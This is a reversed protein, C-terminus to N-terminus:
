ILNGLYTSFLSSLKDLCFNLLLINGCMSVVIPSVLLFLLGLNCQFEGSFTQWMWNRLWHLSSCLQYCLLLFSCYMDDNHQSLGVCYLTNPTWEEDASKCPLLCFVPRPAVRSIFLAKNIKNFSKTDYVFFRNHTNVDSMPGALVLGVSLYGMALVSDCCCICWSSDRQKLVWCSLSRWCGVVVFKADPGLVLAASTVRLPVFRLFLSVNSTWLTVKYLAAPKAPTSRQCNRISPGSFGPHSISNAMRAKTNDQNHPTWVM